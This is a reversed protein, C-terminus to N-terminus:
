GLLTQWQNERARRAIDGMATHVIGAADVIALAGRHASEVIGGRWAQVLEPNPNLPTDMRASYRSRRPRRDQTAPLM